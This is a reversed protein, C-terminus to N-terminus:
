RKGSRPLAALREDLVKRVTKLDRPDDFVFQDLFREAHRRLTVDFPVIPWFLRTSTLGSGTSRSDLYGKEILRNVLTHLSSYALAFDPDLRTLEMGLERLTIEGGRKAVAYFIQWESPALYPLNPQPAPMHRDRASAAREM